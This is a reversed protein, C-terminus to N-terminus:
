DEVFLLFRKEADAIHQKAEGIKKQALADMTQKSLSYSVIRKSWKLFREFQKHHFNTLTHTHTYKKEREIKMEYFGVYIDCSDYNAM